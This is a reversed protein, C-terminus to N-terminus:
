TLYESGQDPFISLIILVNYSQAGYAAILM